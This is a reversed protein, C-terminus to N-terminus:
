MNGPQVFRPLRAVERRRYRIAHMSRGLKAAIETDSYGAFFLRRLEDDHEPLWAEKPAYQKEESYWADAAAKMGEADDRKFAAVWPKFSAVIEKERDTM